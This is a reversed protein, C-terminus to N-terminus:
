HWQDKEKDNDSEENTKVKEIGLTKMLHKVPDRALGVVDRPLVWRSLENEAAAARRM